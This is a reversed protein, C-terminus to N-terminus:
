RVLKLSRSKNTPTFDLNPTETRLPKTAWTKLIKKRMAGYIDLVNEQVKLETALLPVTESTTNFHKKAIDKISIIKNNVSLSNINNDIDDIIIVADKADRKIIDTLDKYDAFTEKKIQKGTRSMHTVTFGNEQKDIASIKSSQKLYDPIANLDTRLKYIAYLTAPDRPIFSTTNNRTLGTTPISGEVWDKPPNPQEKQPLHAYEDKYQKRYADFYEAVIKPPADQVASIRMLEDRTQEKAKKIANGISRYAHLNINSPPELSDLLQSDDIMQQSVNRGYTEAISNSIKDVYDYYDEGSKETIAHILQEAAELTLDNPNKRLYIDNTVAKERNERSAAIIMEIEEPEFSGDLDSIIRALAPVRGNQIEKLADSQMIRTAKGQVFRSFTIRNLSDNPLNVISDQLEKIGQPTTDYVHQAELLESLSNNYEPTGKGHVKSIQHFLERKIDRTQCKDNCRPGPWVECM